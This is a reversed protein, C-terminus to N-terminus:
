APAAPPAPGYHVLHFDTPLGDKASYMCMPSVVARNALTMERLRLPQFM